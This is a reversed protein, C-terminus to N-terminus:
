YAPRPSLKIVYQTVAFTPKLTGYMNSKVTFCNRNLEFTIERFLKKCLEM